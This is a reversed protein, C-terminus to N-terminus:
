RGGGTRRRVERSVLALEIMLPEFQQDFQIPAMGPRRRRLDEVQRTLDSQKTILAQVAPDSSTPAAEVDLYTITAVGGSTAATTADLPEGKGLDDMVPHESALTGAQEYHQAVLRAAHEFAELVSIRRNKDADAASATLAEIFKGAFQTHFREAPTRTATIVVRGEGALAGLYPFSASTTNVFVLRGQVPKLLEAWDAASLDPGILNFKAEGSQASGHGILVVLLLDDAKITGSLKAVAGRLIEATSRQENAGPKEALVVVQGAPIRMQDVLTKRLSDLWQRHLAAYQPEGSAGEVLLAYRQQAAATSATGAVLLTAAILRLRAGRM